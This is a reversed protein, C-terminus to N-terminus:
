ASWKSCAIKPFQTARIALIIPPTSIGCYMVKFDICMQLPMRAYTNLNLQAADRILLVGDPPHFPADDDSERETHPHNLRVCIGTHFYCIWERMCACVACACLMDAIIHTYTYRM